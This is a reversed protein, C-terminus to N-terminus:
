AQQIAPVPEQARNRGRKRQRKPKACRLARLHPLMWAGSTRYILLFLIYLPSVAVSENIPADDVKTTARRLSSRSVTGGFYRPPHRYLAHLRREPACMDIQSTANPTGQAKYKSWVTKSNLCVAEACLPRTVDHNSIVRRMLLLGGKPRGTVQSGGGDRTPKWIHYQRGGGDPHAGSALLRPLSLLRYRPVRQAADGLGMRQM